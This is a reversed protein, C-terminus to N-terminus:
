VWVSPEARVHAFEVGIRRGCAGRNEWVLCSQYLVEVLLGVWLAGSPQCQVALALTDALLERGPLFAIIAEAVVRQQFDTKYCPTPLLYSHQLRNLDRSMTLSTVELKSVLVTIGSLCTPACDLGFEPDVILLLGHAELPCPKARRWAEYLSDVHGEFQSLLWSLQRRM